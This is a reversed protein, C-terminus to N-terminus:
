NSENAKNKSFYIIYLFHTINYVNQKLAKTAFLLFICPINEVLVVSPFLRGPDVIDVFNCFAEWHAYWLKGLICWFQAGPTVAWCGILWICLDFCICYTALCWVGPYIWWLSWMRYHLWDVANWSNSDISGSDTQLQIFDYKSGSQHVLAFGIIYGLVM